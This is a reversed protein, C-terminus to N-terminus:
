LVGVAIFGGILLVIFVTFLLGLHRHIFIEIPAGFRRLLAAIIFFRLGRALISSIIFMSLNLGTAGSLITIIKYPFPTVGAM